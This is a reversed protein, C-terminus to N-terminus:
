CLLLEELIGRDQYLTLGLIAAAIGISQLRQIDQKNRIGGSAQWALNPFQDLAQQYLEFNPGNMMGDCSIDTCLIQTIGYSQYRDVVRWLSEKSNDQWGHTLVFPTEGEIHVDLALIIKDASIEDIIQMTLEPETVALSGIVLYTIGADLCIKATELSRIGGGAQISINAQQMKKILNFQQMQGTRAGDLDVIHIRSAKSNAFSFAREVPDDNFETVQDFKGQKLRVCRGSQLDIAPIILM